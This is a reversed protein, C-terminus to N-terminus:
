IWSMLVGDAMGLRAVDDLYSRLGAETGCYLLRNQTVSQAERAWKAACRTSEAVVVHLDLLVFHDGAARVASAISQARALNAAYVVTADRREHEVIVQERQHGVQRSDLPTTCRCTAAAIVFSPVRTPSASM